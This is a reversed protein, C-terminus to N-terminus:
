LFEYVHARDAVPVEGLGHGDGAGLHLDGLVQPGLDFVHHHAADVFHLAVRVAVVHPDALDVGALVLGDLDDGPGPVDMLPVQDGHGLVIGPKGAALVDGPAIEPAHLGLPHEARQLLQVQVLPVEGVGDDLGGGQQVVVLGDVRLLWRNGLVNDGSVFDEPIHFGCKDCLNKGIAISAEKYLAVAAPPGVFNPGAAGIDVGAVGHRQIHRPLMDAGQRVEVRFLPLEGVADGVADEDEVLVALGSVVDAGDDARVVMHHFKFDGGVARVAEADDAQGPLRRDGEALGELEVVRLNLAPRLAGKRVQQVYLGRVRVETGPVGGPHHPVHLDAGGGLPHPLPEAGAADPRDIVNHVDGVIHHQFVALGHVGKVVAIDLAPFDHDAPGPGPLLQGGQVPVDPLQGGIHQDNGVVGPGHAKRADHASQVALNHRVGHVHDKFGGVELSAADPFGGQGQPHPRLGGGLKFLAQIDEVGEGGHVPGALQHLQQPGSLHHVADNVDQVVDGVGDRHLELRLFHVAEQPHVDGLLVGPLRQGGQAEAQLSVGDSHGGPAGVHLM